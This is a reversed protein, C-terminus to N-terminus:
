DLVHIEGGASTMVSYYNSMYSVAQEAPYMQLIVDPKLNGISYAYDWKMHGPYFCTLRGMIGGASCDLKAEQNAIHADNKGLFDVFKRDTFYPITGAWSLGIVDSEKTSRSLYQSLKVHFQNDATTPVPKILFMPLIWSRDMINLSLISGAVAGITILKWKGSFINLKFGAWVLVATFVPMIVSVYRNAGGWQEWADGGVYINYLVQSLIIFGPLILKNNKFIILAGLPISAWWGIFEGTVVLGRTLRLWLPYGTMKLYYTNPLFDGFYSKQWTLLLGLSTLIIFFGKQWYLVFILAILLYDMRIWVGAALLIITKLGAPRVLAMLTILCLLGTETGQIITWNILPFYLALLFMTLIKMSQSKILSYAFRGALYIIALYIVLNTLQIILSTHAPDIPLMHIGAMYFVWLPNSFGQTNQGPNWTLGNGVSLNKAYKMSVMMDDFLVFYRQGEIAFSNRWILGLGYIAFVLLILRSFHRSVFTISPVQLNM